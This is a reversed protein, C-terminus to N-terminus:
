LTIIGAKIKNILLESHEMLIAFTSSFGGEAYERAYSETIQKSTVVCLDRVIQLNALQGLTQGTGLPIDKPINYISKPATARHIRERLSKIVAM